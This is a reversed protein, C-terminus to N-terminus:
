IYQSQGSSSSALHHLLGADLDELHMRRHVELMRFLPVKFLLPGQILSSLSCLLNSEKLIM